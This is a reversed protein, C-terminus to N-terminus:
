QLSKWVAADIQMHRSTVSTPPPIVAVIQDKNYWCVDETSPWYFRNQGARHMCRVLVDATDVNLVLGPYPKEDRGICKRIEKKHEIRYGGIRVERGSSLEVWECLLPRLCRLVYM